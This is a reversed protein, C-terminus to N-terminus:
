PLPLNQLFTATLDNNPPLSYQPPLGVPISSLDAIGAESLADPALLLEMKDYQWSRTALSQLRSWSKTRKQSLGVVKNGEVTVEGHGMGAFCILRSAASRDSTNAVAIPPSTPADIDMSSADMASIHLSTQLTSAWAQGIWEFSRAIDPQHLKSSTPLVVDIWCDNTPEVYVLGGGSRRRCLDVGQEGIAVLDLISERQTSGLVLTPTAVTHVWIEPRTNDSPRRDHFEQADGTTYRVQWPGSRETAQTPASVGALALQATGGVEGWGRDVELGRHTM